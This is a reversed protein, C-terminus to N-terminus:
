FDESDNEVYKHKAEYDDYIPIAFDKQIQYLFDGIARDYLSELEYFEVEVTRDEWDFFLNGNEERIYINVSRLAQVFLPHNLLFSSISQQIEERFYDKVETAIDDEIVRWESSTKGTLIYIPEVNYLKSLEEIHNVRRQGKEYKSITAKTVGLCDAVQQQTLGKAERLKRLDSREKYM